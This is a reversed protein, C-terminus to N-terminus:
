VSTAFGLDEEGDNRRFGSDLEFVRGYSVFQKQTSQVVYQFQIGAKAPIVTLLVAAVPFNHLYRHGGPSLIQIRVFPIGIRCNKADM